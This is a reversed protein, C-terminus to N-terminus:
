RELLCNRLAEQHPTPQYSFLSKSRRNILSLDRFFFNKNSSYGILIQDESYGAVKAYICAFEYRTIADGCIHLIKENFDKEIIEKVASVFDLIWTPSYKVDVFASVANGKSLETNLFKIFSADNDYIASTRIVCFNNVDKETLLKEAQLKTKGYVTQPKALDYESYNGRNGEFVYDTSIYIIKSSPFSAILNETTLVNVQYAVDPNNECYGIDKIGASHIIIDPEITKSLSNVEEQSILNCKFYNLEISNKTGLGYVNYNENLYRLLRSGFYGLAGTILITKKM